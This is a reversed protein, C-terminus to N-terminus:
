RVVCTDMLLHVSACEGKSWRDLPANLRGTDGVSPGSRIHRDSAFSSPFGVYSGVEVTSILSTVVAVTPTRGRRGTM